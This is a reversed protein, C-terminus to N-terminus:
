KYPICVQYSYIALLLNPKIEVCALFQKARGRGQMEYYRDYAPWSLNHSTPPMIFLLTSLSSKGPHSSNHDESGLWDAEGLVPPEPESLSFKCVGLCWVTRGQGRHQVSCQDSSLSLFLWPPCNTLLYEHSKFSRFLQLLSETLTHKLNVASIM